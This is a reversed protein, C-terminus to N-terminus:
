LGKLQSIRNEAVQALGEVDDCAYGAARLAGRIQGPSLHLLLRGIRAADERPHRQPNGRSARASHVRQAPARAPSRM